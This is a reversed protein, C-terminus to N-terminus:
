VLHSLVREVDIRSMCWPAGHTWRCIAEGHGTRPLCCPVGASLAMHPPHFTYNVQTSGYLVITKPCRAALALFSVGTDNGVTAHCASLLAACERLSTQVVRVSGSRVSEFEARMGAERPGLFVLVSRGSRSDIWREALTKFNEVPWQKTHRASGPVLALREHEAIHWEALARSASQLEEETMGVRLPPVERVDTLARLLDLRREVHDPKVALDNKVVHSFARAAGFGEYGVRVPIELKSCLIRSRTSPHACLCVDFTQENLQGALKNIGAAGRETGHKDYIWVRELDPHHMVIEQARPATVFHIVSKPWSARVAGILSTTFLVDGLWATDIILVRSPANEM